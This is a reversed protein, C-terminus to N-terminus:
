FLDFNDIKPRPLRSCDLIEEFVNVGIRGKRLLRDLISFLTTEDTKQSFVSEETILKLDLLTYILSSLDAVATEVPEVLERMAKLYDDEETGELILKQFFDNSGKLIHVVAKLIPIDSHAVKPMIMKLYDIAPIATNEKKEELMKKMRESLYESQIEHTKLLDTVLALSEQIEKNKKALDESKEKLLAKSKKLSIHTLVRALLEDKQFPKSIYDVGGSQFGKVINETDNLATVFIVPSDAYLANERIKGALEFGSIEPMMIDLLFLDPHHTELLSLCENASQASIVDYLGSGTLIKELIQCNLDVDDVICILSKKDM